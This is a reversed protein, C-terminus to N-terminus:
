PHFHHVNKKNPFKPPEPAYKGKKYKKDLIDLATNMKPKYQDEVSNEDEFIPSYKKVVKKKELKYEKDEETEKRSFTKTKLKDWFMLNDVQAKHVELKDAKIQKLESQAEEPQKSILYDYIKSIEGAIEEPSYAWEIKHNCVMKSIEQQIELISFAFNLEDKDLINDKIIDLNALLTEIFESGNEEFDRLGKLDYIYEDGGDFLKFGFKNWDFASFKEVDSKIWGKQTFEKSQHVYSCSVKLYDDVVTTGKLETNHIITAIVDKQLKEIKDSENKPAIVFAKTINKSLKTVENKKVTTMQIIPITIEETIEENKWSNLIFDITTPYDCVSKLRTTKHKTQVVEATKDLDTIKVWCVKGAEEPKFTVKRSLGDKPTSVWILRSTEKDLLNDFLKNVANFNIYDYGKPKETYGKYKENGKNSTYIHGAVPITKVISEEVKIKAYIGNTELVKVPLHERLNIDIEVNQELITDKPLKVFRLDKETNGAKFDNNLFEEAGDEMFVDLQCAAYGTNQENTVYGTYGICDGAKIPIDCKVIDNKTIKNEDFSVKEEFNNKGSFGEYGELVYWGNVKKEKITVAQGHEIIDVITSDKTTPKNRIRAGKLDKKDEPVSSKDIWIENNEKIIIEFSDGHDKVRPYKRTKTPAISIYIDDYFDGNIDTFTVKAYSGIKILNGEADLAKTVKEGFPVVVKKTSDDRWDIKGAKNLIRANLGIRKKKVYEFQEQAKVTLNKKGMFDPFIIKKNELYRGEIASIPMLHNYLSYFTVIKKETETKENEKGKDKSLEIDHQILIFCNSYKFTTKEETEERESNSDNFAKTSSKTKPLELYNDMFRYAIIRGDAIAHISKDAEEIHVGSHWTNFHSILYRGYKNTFKLGKATGDKEPYSTKM